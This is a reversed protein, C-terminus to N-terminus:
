QSRGECVRGAHTPQGRQLIPAVKNTCGSSRSFFRICSDLICDDDTVNESSVAV